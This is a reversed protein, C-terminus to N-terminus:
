RVYDDFLDRISFQFFVVFFLFFYVDIVRDFLRFYLYLFIDEFDYNVFFYM